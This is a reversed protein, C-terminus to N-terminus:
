KKDERNPKLGYEIELEIIWQPPNDYDSISKIYNQMVLTLEMDPIEGGNINLRKQAYFIANRLKENFVTQENAGGYLYLWALVQCCKDGSIIPLGASSATEYLDKRFDHLNEM